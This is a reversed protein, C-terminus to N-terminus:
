GAKTFADRMASETKADRLPLHLDVGRHAARLRVADNTFEVCGLEDFDLDTCGTRGIIRMRRARTDLRIEPAELDPSPRWALLAGAVFLSASFLLKILRMGADGPAAPVLWLGLAAAVLVTGLFVRGGRMVASSAWPGPDAAPSVDLDSEARLTVTM